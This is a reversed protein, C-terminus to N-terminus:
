PSKDLKVGIIEALKGLRRSYNKWRHMSTKYIPQRAQLFSATKIIRKTKHFKLCNDEWDLGCFEILRRSEAEQHEIMEEYDVALIRGPYLQDWHDMLRSCDNYFHGLANMDFSYGQGDSFNQFFCSLCTDLPDRRTYIVRARPFMDLILGLFKFNLPHKDVIRTINEDDVLDGIKSLYISAMTDLATDGLQNMYNPYDLNVSTLKKGVKAIGKIYNLEGAGHVKSHSSLIQEILTSGSRPMGIVFVPIESNNGSEGRRKLYDRSYIYISDKIFQRHVASDFGIDADKNGQRYHRFALSYEGIDDYIKGAAFHFFRRTSSKLDDNDLQRLIKRLLPDNKKFKILEALSQYPEGYDPKLQIAKRLNREAEAVNGTRRHIYAINHYFEPVKPSLKIARSMSKLAEDNRDLGIQAMGKLHIVGAHTPEEKLLEICRKEAEAPKTSLLKTIAIIRENKIM